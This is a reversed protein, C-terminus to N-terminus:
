SKILYKGTLVHQQRSATLEVLAGGGTLVIMLYQFSQIAEREYHDVYNCDNDKM